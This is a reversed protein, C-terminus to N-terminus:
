YIVLTHYFVHFYEENSDRVRYLYTLLYVYIFMLSFQFPCGFISSESVSAVNPVLCLVLCVFCFCLVSFYFSSCCMDRMFDATLDLHGRLILLEQRKYSSGVTNCMTLDPSVITPLAM